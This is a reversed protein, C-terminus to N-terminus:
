GFETAVRQALKRLRSTYIETAKASAHGLSAQAAELDYKDRVLQGRTHRLQHPTWPTVGAERLRPITPKAPWDHYDAMAALAYLIAQRYSHSTYQDGARPHKSWESPMFCPRDAPRDLWPTLVVQAQPGLYIQLTLGRWDTKHEDPMWLWPDVSRDVQSPRLDCINESRAGTFWQLRVMAAVCDSLHPLTAEVAAWSIVDKPTTEPAKTKGKRLGPVTELATLQEAAILEESVGWRFMRVTRRTRANVGPRTYGKDVLDSQLQKLKKPGFDGLPTSEFLPWVHDVCLRRFHQYEEGGEYHEQAYDLYLATFHGVSEPRDPALESEVGQIIRDYAARSEPSGYRGPLYHRKGDIEVFARDRQSHKRYKPIRAM